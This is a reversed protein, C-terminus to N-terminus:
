GQRFLQRLLAIGRCFQEASMSAHAPMGVQVRFCMQMRRLNNQGLQSQHATCPHLLCPATTVMSMALLVSQLPSNLIRASVAKVELRRYADASLLDQLTGGQIEVISMGIRADRQASGEQALRSACVLSRSESAAWLGPSLQADNGGGTGWCAM